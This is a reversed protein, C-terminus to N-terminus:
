VLFKPIYIARIKKHFAVFTLMVEKNKLIELINCRMILNWKHSCMCVKYMITLTTRFM